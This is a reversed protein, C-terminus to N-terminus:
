LGTFIAKIKRAKDMTVTCEPNSYGTCGGGKWGLFTSGATGSANLTVSEGQRYYEKCDGPCNIRTGPGPSTSTVTGTGGRKSAVRVRLKNPGRFYAKATKTGSIDVRCLPNTGSCEGGWGLFINPYIAVASLNVPCGDDYLARCVRTARDATCHIAGDESFVSGKGKHIRVPDVKLNHQRGPAPDKNFIAGVTLDGTMTIRCTSDTIGHCPGGSWSDFISGCVASATLTIYTGYSVESTCAVGCAIGPPYSTITGEGTGTKTVALTERVPTLNFAAVISRHSTM